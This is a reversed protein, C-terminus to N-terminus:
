TNKQFYTPIFLLNVISEVQAEPEKMLLTFKTWFGVDTQTIEPEAFCGSPLRHPKASSWAPFWRKHRQGGVCPRLAASRAHSKSDFLVSNLNWSLWRNASHIQAFLKVRM